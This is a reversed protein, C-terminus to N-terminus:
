KTVVNILLKDGEVGVVNCFTRNGTRIFDLAVRSKGIRLNRIHLHDLWDPLRPTVINLDKRPAAPRIVLISTLSHSRPGSACAHRPCSVPYTM